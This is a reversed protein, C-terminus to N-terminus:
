LISEFYLYTCLYSTQFYFYAYYCFLLREKEYASVTPM